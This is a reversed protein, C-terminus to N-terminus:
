GSVELFVKVITMFRSFQDLYSFHGANKLVVLGGDPITKAMIEGFYVPTDQDNEGYIMLSPAKIDKLYGKLDQNVVSVFTQRMVGSLQRYDESGANKVRKAEDVGFLRCIRRLIGSKAAKKLLKYTYVKFYYRFTRKKRLGAADVFVLRGVLEPRTAALLITVRGGFSHCIIDTGQIGWECILAAVIDAYDSVTMPREPTDSRGFGPFDLAYVKRYRALESIVPTFSEISAAWGHLLLLPKGEGAEIHHIGLGNIKSEM